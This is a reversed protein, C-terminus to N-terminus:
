GTEETEMWSLPFDVPVDVPSLPSYEMVTVDESVMMAEDM